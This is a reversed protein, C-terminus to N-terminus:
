RYDERLKQMTILNREYIKMSKRKYSDEWQRHAEFCLLNINRADYAMEPHAGRSLIHSIHVPSFERLYIGTEECCREHPYNNWFWRYFRQNNQWMYKGFMEKQLELRLSFVIEYDSDILPETTGHTKAYDYEGRETILIKSM